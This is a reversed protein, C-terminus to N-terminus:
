YYEMVAHAQSLRMIATELRTQVQGLRHLQDHESKTLRISEGGSSQAQQASLKEMKDVLTKSSNLEFELRFLLHKLAATMEQKLREYTRDSAV